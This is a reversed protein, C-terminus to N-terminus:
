FYLISFQGYTCKGTVITALRERVCSCPHEIIIINIIIIIIIINIRSLSPLSAFRFSPLFSPFNLPLSLIKRSPESFEPSNSLLYTRRVTRQRTNKKKKKVGVHNYAGGRFISFSSAQLYLFEVRFISFSRLDASEGSPVREHSM